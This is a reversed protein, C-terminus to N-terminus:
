SARGYELSRLAGKVYATAFYLSCRRSVVHSRRRHAAHWMLAPLTIGIAHVIRLLAMGCHGGLRSQSRDLAAQSAGARGALAYLCAPLLRESPILHFIRADPAVAFVAGSREANRFFQLDEGYSITPFGGLREILAKKVLANGGGRVAIRTARFRLRDFLSLRERDGAMTPNHGLLMRITGVPEIPSPGMVRAVCPGGVCDAGTRRAVDLLGWLWEETAIEDDDIFAVWPARAESVARNRASGVGSNVQRVYRIEVPSAEV